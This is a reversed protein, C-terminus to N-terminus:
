YKIGIDNFCVIFYCLFFDFSTYIQDFEGIGLLRM